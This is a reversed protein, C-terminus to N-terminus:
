ILISRYQLYVPRSEVNAVLVLVQKYLNYVFSVYVSREVGWLESASLWSVRCSMDSICIKAM